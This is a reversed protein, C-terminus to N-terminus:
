TQMSSVAAINRMDVLHREARLKGNSFKNRGGVSTWALDRKYRWAIRGDSDLAFLSLWRNDFLARVQDHRKLIDIM